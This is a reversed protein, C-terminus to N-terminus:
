RGLAKLDFPEISTGDIKWAKNGEPILVFIPIQHSLSLFVHHEQPYPTKIHSAMLGVTEGGQNNLGLCGNSFSIKESLQEGTESIRFRYHRGVVAVNPKQTASLVYLYDGKGDESPIIVTNMPLFQACPEIDNASFTSKARMQIREEETLARGTPYTTKKKVKKGKTEADFVSVIEGNLESIFATRLRKKDTLTTAWGKPTGTETYLKLAAKKKRLADTAVWASRDFEYLLQGLQAARDLEATYDQATALAPLCFIFLAFIYKLM